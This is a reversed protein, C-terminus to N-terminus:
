RLGSSLCSSAFFASSSYPGSSFDDREVLAVKLGRTAADLASGAGTAGGGVILLDYEEEEKEPFQAIKVGKGSKKLKEIMQRRSPPSWLPGPREYAQSSPPPSDLLMPSLAFAATAGVALTTAATAALIPRKFRPISRFMPTSLLYPSFPLLQRPTAFSPSTSHFLPQATASGTGQACANHGLFGRGKTM